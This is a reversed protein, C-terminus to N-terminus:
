LDWTEGVLRKESRQISLEHYNKETRMTRKHKHLTCGGCKPVHIVVEPAPQFCERFIIFSGAYSCCSIWRLALVSLSFIPRQSEWSVSYNDDRETRWGDLLELVSGVGVSRDGTNCHITPHNRDSLGPTHTLIRLLFFIIENQVQACVCVYVCVSRVLASLVRVRNLLTIWRM